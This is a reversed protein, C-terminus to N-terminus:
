CCAQKNQAKQKLGHGCCECYNTSDYTIHRYDFCDEPQPYEWRFKSRIRYWSANEMEAKTYICEPISPIGDKRLFKILENKWEDEEILYVVVIDTGDDYFKAKKERLFNLFKPSIRRKNFAIRHRIKM